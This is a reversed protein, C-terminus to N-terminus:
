KGVEGAFPCRVMGFDPCRHETVVYSVGNGTAERYDSGLDADLVLLVFGADFWDLPDDAEVMVEVAIKKQFRVREESM